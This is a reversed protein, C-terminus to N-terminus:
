RGALGKLDPVPHSPPHSAAVAYLPPFLASLLPHQACAQPCPLGPISMCYAWLSLPPPPLPTLSLPQPGACFALPPVSVTEQAERSRCKPGWLQSGLSLAGLAGGWPLCGQAWRAELAAHLRQRDSTRPGYPRHFGRLEELGVCCRLREGLEPGGPGLTM